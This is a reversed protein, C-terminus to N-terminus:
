VFQPEIRSASRVVAQYRLHQVQCFVFYQLFRPFLSENGVCWLLSLLFRQTSALTELGCAGVALLWDNVTRTTANDDREVLYHGNGLRRQKIYNPSMM